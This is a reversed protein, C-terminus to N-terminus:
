SPRTHWAPPGRTSALMTHVGLGARCSAFRRTTRRTARCNGDPQSQYLGTPGCASNPTFSPYYRIGALTNAWVKPSVHAEASVNMLFRIDGIYGEETNILEELIRRRQLAREAVAPDTALSRDLCASDESLRVGCVSARSSHDARSHGRSSFLTNRRSRALLSVGALSTGASRVATVYNFSSASSSKRHPSSPTGQSKNDGLVHSRFPSGSDHGAMGHRQAHRRRLTRIWRHFPKKLRRAPDGLLVDHKHHDLSLRSPPTRYSRIEDGGNLSFGLSAINELTAWTEIGKIDFSELSELIHGDDHLCDRSKAPISPSPSRSTQAEPSHKRTTHASSSVSSSRMSHVDLQAM